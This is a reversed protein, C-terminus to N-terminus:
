YFEDEILKFTNWDQKDDRYQIIVDTHVEKQSMAM